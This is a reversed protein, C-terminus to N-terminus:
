RSLVAVAAAAGMVKSCGDSVVVLTLGATIGVMVVLGMLLVSMRVYHVMGTKKMLLVMMMLLLLLPLSVRPTLLMEMMTM